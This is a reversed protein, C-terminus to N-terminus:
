NSSPVVGVFIAPPEVAMMMQQRLCRMRLLPNGVTKQKFLHLIPQFFIFLMFVEELDRQCVWLFLGFSSAKALRAHCLHQFVTPVKLSFHVM